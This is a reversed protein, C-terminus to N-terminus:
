HTFHRYIMMIFFWLVIILYSIDTIGGDQETM